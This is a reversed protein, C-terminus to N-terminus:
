VNLERRLQYGKNRVEQLVESDIFVYDHLINCVRRIRQQWDKPLGQERHDPRTLADWEVLLGYVAARRDDRRLDILLVQERMGLIHYRKDGKPMSSLVVEFVTIVDDRTDVITVDATFRQGPYQRETFAKMNAEESFWYALYEKMLYHIRTEGATTGDGSHSSDALEEVYCSYHEPPKSNHCYHAGVLGGELGIRGRKFQVRSLEAKRGADICVPCHYGCLLGSPQDSTPKVLEGTALDLARPIVTEGFTRLPRSHNVEIIHM